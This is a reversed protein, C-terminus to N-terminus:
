APEEFLVGVVELAQTLRPMGHGGDVSLLESPAIGDPNLSELVIITGRRRMRKFYRTGSEDVAIVLRGDLRSLAEPMTQADRAILYQGDLAIPEASRGSVKFLRARELLKSVVSFDTLAIFEANADTPPVPLESGAFLTGVIKRPSLRERPAIVPQALAYPDVSQGTLVAINPHAETENYRRALLKDGFAATVLNRENIKAYDSTIIIDGVGAM